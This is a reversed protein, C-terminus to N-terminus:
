PRYDDMHGIEMSVSSIDAHIVFLCGLWNM